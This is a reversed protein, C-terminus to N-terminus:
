LGGSRDWYRTQGGPWRGSALGWSSALAVADRSM